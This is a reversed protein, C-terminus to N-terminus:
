DVEGTINENGTQNNRSKKNKLNIEHKWVEKQSWINQIETDDLGVAKLGKFGTLTDLIRGAGRYITSEESSSFDCTAIMTAFCGLLIVFYTGVVVGAGIGVYKGIKGKNEWASNLISKTRELASNAISKLNGGGIVNELMEELIQLENQKKM